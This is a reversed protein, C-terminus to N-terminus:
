ADCRSISASSAIDLVLIYSNDYHLNPIPPDTIPFAPDRFPCDSLLGWRLLHRSSSLVAAWQDITNHSALACIAQHTAQDVGVDAVRSARPFAKLLLLIHM